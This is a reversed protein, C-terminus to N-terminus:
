PKGPRKAVPRHSRAIRRVLRVDPDTAWEGVLAATKDDIGAAELMSLVSLNSMDMEFLAEQGPSEDADKKARELVANRVRIVELIRSMEPSRPSLEGHRMTIPSEELSENAVDFGAAMFLLLASASARRHAQDSLNNVIYGIFGSLNLDKDVQPACWPTPLEILAEKLDEIQTGTMETGGVVLNRRLQARTESLLIRIGLPYGSLSHTELEPVRAFVSETGHWGIVQGASALGNELLYLAVCLHNERQCRIAVDFRNINDKVQQRWFATNHATTYSGAELRRMEAIIDTYLAIFLAAFNTPAENLAQELYDYLYRSALTLNESSAGLFLHLPFAHKEGPKGDSQYYRLVQAMLAQLVPPRPVIYSLAQAGFELLKGRLAPEIDSDTYALLIELFDDAGDEVSKNLIQLALQAVVEWGGGRLREILYDFLRAPDTNERVIQSAAFYELFTRHTFGYLEAGVDTLVWARGKCFDIFETAANEAEEEDDFRKKLLYDKMYSILKARPLGRQSAQQPYLWLALSRMAAQIHADFPLPATIGRQKDWSDFLLIACKEYVDPRNRPIYNESAYIGCMLSLMLPNVRLDGVFASEQLFSNCLDSRRGPQISEDLNFWNRAYQDVQKSSFECLSFATFLDSDLPADSYGIRRSTVLIPTTPYRHAFGTVTDVIKRRLATDLLEDLGDFIVFARGNLLLYEIANPPPQISLTVKCQQEIHEILSLSHKSMEAAYERLIILFPVTPAGEGLASSACDFTMKLSLTSKGGGPDGLLVLRLTDTTLEEIKDPEVISDANGNEVPRVGPQVYLKDYPVRRTTGAHPLRMTGYLNRIQLQLQGEFSKYSGLDRVKSLLASNRIASDLHSDQVKLLSAKVAASLTGEDALLQSTISHVASSLSAFIIETAPELDSEQISTKLSLLSRLQQKLEKSIKNSNTGLHGLLTDTALNMALSKLEASAAFQILENAIEPSLTSLFSDTQDISAGSSFEKKFKRKRLAHIVRGRAPTVIMNSASIATKVLTSELGTVMSHGSNSAISQSLGVKSNQMVKGTLTDSTDDRLAPLPDM